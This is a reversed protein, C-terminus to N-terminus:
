NWFNFHTLGQFKVRIGADNLHGTARVGLLPLAFDGEVPVADDHIHVVSVNVSVAFDTNTHVTSGICYNNEENQDLVIKGKVSNLLFIFLLLPILISFWIAAFCILLFVCTIRTPIPERAVVFESLM